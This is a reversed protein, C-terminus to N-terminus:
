RDFLCHGPMHGVPVREVPQLHAQCVARYAHEYDDSFTGAGTIALDGFARTHGIL